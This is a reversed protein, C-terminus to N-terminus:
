VEIITEKMLKLAASPYKLSLLGMAALIYQHDLYFRAHNPKLSLPNKPDAQSAKLASNLIAGCSSFNTGGVCNKLWEEFSVM